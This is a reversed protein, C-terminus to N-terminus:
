RTGGRAYRRWATAPDVKIAEAVSHVSLGHELADRALQDREGTAKDVRRQAAALRHVWRAGDPVTEHSPRRPVIVGNRQM